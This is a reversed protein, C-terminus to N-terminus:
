AERVAMKARARRLPLGKVVYRHAYGSAVYPTSITRWGRRAYLRAGANDDDDLTTLLATKEPLGCLLADHLRSGWGRGQWAPLVALECVLFADQCWRARRAPSLQAVVADVWPLGREARHGYVFGILHEGDWVGQARWGPARQHSRWRPAFRAGALPGEEYPPRTFAEAYVAVVAPELDPADELAIERRRGPEEQM